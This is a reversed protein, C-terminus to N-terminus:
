NAVVVLHWAAIAPDFPGSIISLVRGDPM